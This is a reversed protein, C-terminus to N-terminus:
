NTQAGPVLRIRKGTAADVAARSYLLPFYQADRWMQALDRDHPSDPDGSEGPLNVARSNDRNGVPQVGGARRYM